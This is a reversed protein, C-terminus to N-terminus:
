RSFFSFYDALTTMAVEERPQVHEATVTRAQGLRRQHLAYHAPPQGKRPMGQHSSCAEVATRTRVASSVAPWACAISDSVRPTGRPDARCTTVRGRDSALSQTGGHGVAACDTLGVLLLCRRNESDMQYHDAPATRWYRTACTIAEDVILVASRAELTLAVSGRQRIARFARGTASSPLGVGAVSKYM